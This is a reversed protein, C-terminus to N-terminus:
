YVRYTTSFLYSAALIGLLVYKRDGIILYAYFPLTIVLYGAHIMPALMVLLIYKM